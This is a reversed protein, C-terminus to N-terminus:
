RCYRRSVRHSRGHSTRVWCDGHRWYYRSRSHQRHGGVVAGTAAGIAAGRRGGVAGGIIAGSVAGRGASSQALTDTLPVATVLTLLFLFSFIRGM